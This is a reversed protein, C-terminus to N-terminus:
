IGSVSNIYEFIATDAKKQDVLQKWFAYVAVNWGMNPKGPAGTQTNLHEYTTGGISFDLAMRWRLEAEAGAAGHLYSDILFLNDYLYYSGGRFFYGDPMKERNVQSVYGAIDYQRPPLYSGDAASVVKFGYRTKSYHVMREFHRRVCTSELLKRDFFLQGLLDAVLPDPGLITNKKRSIPYFGLKENFLGRYHVIAKEPDSRTSLGMQRAALLALAFLGQNYSIVDDPEFAMVDGWYQFDKRGTRADYSYYCNDRARKEILDVYAQVQQKDVPIGSRTARYAWIIAFLPYEAFPNVTHLENKLCEAAYAPPLMASIWFADRGYQTNGYEVSPVVWYKSKGSDNVRLNMYATTFALAAFYDPHPNASFHTAVLQNVKKRLGNVTGTRARFLLGEFTHGARSSIRHYHALVKGPTFIQGSEANYDMQYQKVTDPKIGPSQGNDGSSLEIIKRDTYFGQSTFNDYLAPSGSLAVTFVSDSRLAVVPVAQMAISKVIWANTDHPCQRYIETSEVQGNFNFPTQDTYAGQLSFFVAHSSDRLSSDRLSSDGPGGVYTAVAKFVTYDQRPQLSFQVRIGQVQKECRFPKDLADPLQIIPLDAKGPQKLVLTWVPQARTPQSAINTRCGALWFLECGLLLIFWYFLDSSQKRNGTNPHSSNSDM